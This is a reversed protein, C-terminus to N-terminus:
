IPLSLQENLMSKIPEYTKRHISTFGHEHIASIHEKTGYGKNKKLNYM